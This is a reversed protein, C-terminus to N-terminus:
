RELERAGAAPLHVEAGPGPVPRLPEHLERVAREGLGGRPPRAERGDDMGAIGPLEVVRQGGRPGPGLVLAAELVPEAAPIPPSDCDCPPPDGFDLVADRQPHVPDHLLDGLRPAGLLRRATCFLLRSAEELERAIKEADGVGVPVEHAHVVGPLLRKPPRGGLERATREDLEDM